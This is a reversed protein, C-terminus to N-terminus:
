SLELLILPYGVLWNSHARVQEPQHTYGLGTELHEELRCLRLSGLHDKCDDM